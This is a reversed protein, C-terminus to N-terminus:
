IQYGVASAGNCEIEETGGTCPWNSCPAKSESSLIAQFMTSRWTPRWNFCTRKHLGSRAIFNFSHVNSKFSWWYVWSISRVIVWSTESLWVWCSSGSCWASLVLVFVYRRAEATVIRFAGLRCIICKTTNVGQSLNWDAEGIPAMNCKFEVLRVPNCTPLM